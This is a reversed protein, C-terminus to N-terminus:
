EISFLIYLSEEKPFLADMSALGQPPGTSSMSTSLPESPCGTRAKTKATAEECSPDNLRKETAGDQTTAAAPPNDVAATAPGLAAAPGPTPASFLTKITSDENFSFHRSFGSEASM